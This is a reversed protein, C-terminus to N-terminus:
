GEMQEMELTQLVSLGNMHDQRPQKTIVKYEYLPKLYDFTKEKTITVHLKNLSYLLSQIFAQRESVTHRLIACM